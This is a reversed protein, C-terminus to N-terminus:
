AEAYGRCMRIRCPRPPKCRSNRRISASRFYQSARHATARGSAVMGQSWVLDDPGLQGQAAMAGLEQMSVPGAQAGNRIYLWQSESM